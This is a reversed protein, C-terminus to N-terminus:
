GDQDNQNELDGMTGLFGQVRDRLRSELKIQGSFLEVALSRRQFISLRRKKPAKNPRRQIAKPEEDPLQKHQSQKSDLLKTESDEKLGKMQQAKEPEQHNQLRRCTRPTLSKRHASLGPASDKPLTVYGKRNSSKRTTREFGQYVTKTESAKTSAVNYAHKGTIEFDLIVPKALQATTKEQQPQMFEKFSQDEMENQGTPPTKVNEQVAIDFGQRAGLKVEIIPTECFDNLEHAMSKGQPEMQGHKSEPFFDSSDEHKVTANKSKMEGAKHQLTLAINETCRANATAQEDEVLADSACFSNIQYNFRTKPLLVDRQKGASRWELNGQMKQQSFVNAEGGKPSEVNLSIEDSGQETLQVDFENDSEDAFTDEAVTNKVEGFAKEVWALRALAKDCQPVQKAATKSSQLSEKQRKSFSNGHLRSASEATEKQLMPTNTTCISKCPASKARKKRGFTSAGSSVVSELSYERTTGNLTRVSSASSCGEKRAYRACRQYKLLTAVDDEGQLIRLLKDLRQLTGPPLKAKTPKPGSYLRRKYTDSDTMLTDASFVRHCGWFEDERGRQDRELVAKQQRIGRLAQKHEEDILELREKLRTQAHLNRHFCAHAAVIDAPLIEGNNKKKAHSPPRLLLSFNM